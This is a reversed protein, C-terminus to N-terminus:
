FCSLVWRCIAQRWWIVIVVHLRILMMLLVVEKSPNASLLEQRQIEDMTNNIPAAQLALVITVEEVIDYGDALNEDSGGSEVSSDIDMSTPANLDIVVVLNENPEEKEQEMDMLEHLDNLAQDDGEVIAEINLDFDM